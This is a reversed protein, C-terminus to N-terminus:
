IVRIGKAYMKRWYEEAYKDAEEWTDFFKTGCEECTCCYGHEENYNEQFIIKMDEKSEVQMDIIEDTDYMEFVMKTPYYYKTMYREEKVGSGMYVGVKCATEERNLSPLSTIDIIGRVRNDVTRPLQVTFVYVLHKKRSASLIDSTLRNVISKTLRSDAIRWLEDLAVFGDKMKFMKDVSDILVYPIKFLHYNSFIKRRREFWNKWALFTLTSTKGTGLEGCIQYMVM